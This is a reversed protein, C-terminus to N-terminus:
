AEGEMIGETDLGYDTLIKRIIDNDLEPRNGEYYELDVQAFEISEIEDVDSSSKRIEELINYIIKIKM